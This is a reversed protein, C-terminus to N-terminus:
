AADQFVFLPEPFLWSLGGGFVPGAEEDPSGEAQGTFVQFTSNEYAM